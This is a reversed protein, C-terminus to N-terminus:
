TFIPSSMSLKDLLYSSGVTSLGCFSGIEVIPIGRPMNAIAHETAAINEPLLMGPVAFRIWMLFENPQATGQDSRKQERGIRSAALRLANATVGRVGSQQLRSKLMSTVGM